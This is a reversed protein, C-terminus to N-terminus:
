AGLIVFFYAIIMLLLGLLQDVGRALATPNRFLHKHLREESTYRPWNFLHRSRDPICIARLIDCAVEFGRLFARLQWM